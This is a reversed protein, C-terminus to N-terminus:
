WFSISGITAAGDAVCPEPHLAKVRKGTAVSYVSAAWHVSLSATLNVTSAHVGTRASPADATGNPITGAAAVTPGALGVEEITAFYKRNPSLVLAVACRVGEALPALRM